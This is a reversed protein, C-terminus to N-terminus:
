PCSPENVITIDDVWFDGFGDGCSVPLAFVIRGTQGRAAAPLCHTQETFAAPLPPGWTAFSTATGAYEIRGSFSQSTGSSDGRIRLKVAPKALTAASPISIRGSTINGSPGVCGAAFEMHLASNGGSGDDESQLAGNAAWGTDGDEFDGNVVSGPLPCEDASVPELEVHDLRYAVQDTPGISSAAASL